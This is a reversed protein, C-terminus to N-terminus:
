RSSLNQDPSKKRSFQFDGIKIYFGGQKTNTTEAFRFDIFKSYKEPLLQNIIDLPKNMENFSLYSNDTKELINTINKESTEIQQDIVKQALIPENKQEIIIPEVENNELFEIKTEKISISDKIPKRTKVKSFLIKSVPTSTSNQTKSNNALKSQITHGVYEEQKSNTFYIVLALTAAISSITYYLSRTKGKKLSSKSSFKINSDPYIKTKQYTKLLSQYEPSKKILLLLENTKSQNLIGEFYAIIFAEINLQNITEEEDFVKFSQKEQHSLSGTYTENITNIEFYEEILHPHKELFLEFLICDDESLNDELYDLYFAEYNKINIKDMM